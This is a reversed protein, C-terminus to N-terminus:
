EGNDENGPTSPVWGHDILGKERAEEYEWFDLGWIKYLQKVVNFEQPLVVTPEQPKVQALVPANVAANRRWLWLRWGRLDTCPDVLIPCERAANSTISAIVM